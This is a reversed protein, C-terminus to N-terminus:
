NNFKAKKSFFFLSLPSRFLYFYNRFKCAQISTIQALSTFFIKSFSKAKEILFLHQFLNKEIISVVFRELKLITFYFSQLSKQSTAKWGDTWVSAPLTIMPNNNNTAIRLENKKKFFFSSIAWWSLKLFSLFLFFFFSGSSIGRIIDCFRYSCSTNWGISYITLNTEFFFIWSLFIVIGDPECMRVNIRWEITLWFSFFLHNKKFFPTSISIVQKMFKTIQLKSGSKIELITDGIFLFTNQFPVSKVKFFTSLEFKKADLIDQIM